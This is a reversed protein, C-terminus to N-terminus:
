NIGISVAGLAEGPQAERVPTKHIGTALATM